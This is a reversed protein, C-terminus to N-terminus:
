EFPIAEESELDDYYETTLNAFTTTDANFKLLVTGTPGNRHKGIIIEAIGKDKTDKNYVEDRYIFLIVDADQEIAGSERLDSLQPRKNARQEVARNLQSLAIVPINLERALNKLFRSIESIERERSDRDDIGRVLQLYDVIILQIDEQAKLRRAKSRIELISMAPTDDIFLKGESLNGAAETILPWQNRAILGNRLVNSPIKTEQSLLRFGLQEKSMELSFFAVPIRKEVAVHHAINLCLATKGMSPRGAVIILDSKHFGNLKRDLDIFGSPIGSVISKTEYLHEITAVAQSIISTLNSFSATFRKESVEFFKKEVNDLFNDIDEPEEYCNEIIKSSTSIIERLISKNKVIKAYYVANVSTPVENMIETLYSAGGIEELLKNSKLYDTLTLIDIPENQNYLNIFARFITKHSNKYFDEPKLFDLIQDLVKNDLLIAGIVSKEAEINQPPVRRM